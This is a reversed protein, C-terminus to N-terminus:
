GARRVGPDDQLTLDGPRLARLWVIDKIRRGRQACKEIGIVAEKDLECDSALSAQKVDWQRLEELTM